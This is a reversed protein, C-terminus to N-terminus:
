DKFYQRHLLFCRISYHVQLAYWAMLTGGQELYGTGFVSGYIPRSLILMGATSPLVFIMMVKFSQNIHNRIEDVRNGQHAKTVYAVLSVSFATALAVPIVIIKQILAVLTNILEAQGLNYGKNMLVNNIMFTDISQFLPIALGVFVFPIAYMVLEKYLKKYSVKGKAGKIGFIRKVFM